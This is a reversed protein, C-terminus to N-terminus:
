EAHKESVCFENGEPDQMVTWTFGDEMKHTAVEAAGLEVLREIEELRNETEYDIHCRNKATKSEPVKIFFFHGISDDTELQVFGEMAFGLPFGTAESWFRALEQPDGADLVIGGVKLTM